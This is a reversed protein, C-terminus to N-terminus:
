KTNNVQKQCCDRRLIRVNPLNTNGTQVVLVSETTNLLEVILENSNERSKDFPQEVHNM